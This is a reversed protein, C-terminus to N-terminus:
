LLVSLQSACATGIQLRSDLLVVRAIGQVWLCNACSLFDLVTVAKEIASRDAHIWKVFESKRQTLSVSTKDVELDLAQQFRWM